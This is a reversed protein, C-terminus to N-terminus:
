SGELNRTRECLAMFERELQEVFMLIKNIIFDFFEPQIELAGQSLRIDSRGRCFQEIASEYRSGAAFGATHVIVNRVKLFAGLEEWLASDPGRFQGVTKLFRRARALTSGKRDTSDFEGKTILGVNKCLEDLYTEIFTAITVVLSSRIASRFIEDWHVPYNWLWFEDQRNQSLHKVSTKLSEIESGEAQDVLLEIHRAFFRLKELEDRPSSVSWRSGHGALLDSRLSTEFATLKRGM